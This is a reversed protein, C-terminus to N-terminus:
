AAKRRGEEESWGEGNGQKSVGTMESQGRVRVHFRTVLGIIARDVKEGFIAM